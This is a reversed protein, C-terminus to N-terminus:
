KLPNVAAQAVGYLVAWGTEFERTCVTISQQSSDTLRAAGVGAPHWIRLLLTTGVACAVLDGECPEASSDFLIQAGACLGLQPWSDQLRLYFLGECPRPLLGQAEAAFTPLGARILGLVPLSVLSSTSFTRNWGLLQGVSIGLSEALKMAVTRRLPTADAELSQLAKTSLGVKLALEDCSLGGAARAATIHNGTTM